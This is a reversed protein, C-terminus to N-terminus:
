RPPDIGFCYLREVDTPLRHLGTCYEGPVLPDVPVIKYLGTGIKMIAFDFTGPEPDYSEGIRPARTNFRAERVGTTPEWRRIQMDYLDGFQNDKDMSALLGHGKPPMKIVIVPSGDTFRVPSRAGFLKYYVQNGDILTSRGGVIDPKGVELMTLKGSPSVSYFAQAEAPTPIKSDPIRPAATPGAQASAPANAQQMAAVVADPVNARKLVILSDISLDFNHSSAQRISGIIVEPGLGAAVMKLVDANSMGAGAATPAAQATAPADDVGFCFWEESHLNLCYEGPVLPQDPTMLLASGVPSSTFPVLRAQKADKQYVMGKNNGGWDIPIERWGGKRDLQMLDATKGAPIRAIFRLPSGQPFRVIAQERKTVLFSSFGLRFPVNYELPLENGAPDVYFVVNEAAPEAAPSLAATTDTSGDIGFCGGSASNTICYEGPRLPVKPTLALFGGEAASSDFRIIAAYKARQRAFAFTHDGTKDLPFVRRSPETDMEFFQPVSGSSVRMLFKVSTGVPFRVTSHDGPVVAEMATMTSKVAELPSKAGTSDVSYFNGADQARAVSALLAPLSVFSIALLFFQGARFAHCRLNNQM